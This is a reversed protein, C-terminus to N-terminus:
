RRARRSPRSATQVEELVRGLRAVHDARDVNAEAWERGSGALAERSAPAGLLEGLEGAIAAPDVQVFRARDGLRARIHPLDSVVLPLGCALAESVSRPGADSSPVSVGVDALRFYRPMEEHPVDGLLRLSGELDPRELAARVDPSLPASGTAVLLRADPVSQRLRAFGDVLAPLNYVPPAGRFSLVVPGDGLDLEARLGADAPGPSFLELDVGVDVEECRSPDAGREIMTDLLHRSPALVRDARTLAPRSMLRGARGALYVDSGWGTVVLPHVGALAAYLGWVPPQHAQVVAPRLRKVLRRVWPAWELATLPPRPDPGRHVEEAVDAFDIARMGKPVFGAVHVRHGNEATNRAWERLHISSLPGLQLVM